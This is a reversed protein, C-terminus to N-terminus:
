TGLIKACSWCLKHSTVSVTESRRKELLDVCFLGVSVSDWTKCSDTSETHCCMLWSVDTRTHTHSMLQQLTQIHESSSMTFSSALPCKQVPSLRDPSVHKMIFFPSSCIQEPTEATIAEREGRERWLVWSLWLDETIKGVQKECKLAASDASCTEVLLKVFECHRSRANLRYVPRGQRHCTKIHKM